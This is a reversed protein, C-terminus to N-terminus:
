AGRPERRYFACDAHFVEGYMRVVEQGPSIPRDCADCRGARGAASFREQTPRLRVVNTM